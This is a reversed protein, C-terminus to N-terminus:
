YEASKKVNATVRWKTTYELAKEIQKQLGEPTVSIGVFDVAFMLRLATDGGM